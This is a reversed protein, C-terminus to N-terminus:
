PVETTVETRPLLAYTGRRLKAVRWPVGLTVLREALRQLAETVQKKGREDCPKGLVAALQEVTLPQPARDALGRWLREQLPSLDDPPNSPQTTGVLDWLTGLLHLQRDAGALDNITYRGGNAMIRLDLTELEDNVRSILTRVRNARARALTDQETAKARWDPLPADTTTPIRDIDLTLQEIDDISLGAEGSAVFATLLHVHTTTIQHPDVGPAALTHTRLDLTPSPRSVEPAGIVVGLTASAALQWPASLRPTPDLSGVMTSIHGLADTLDRTNAFRANLESVIDGPMSEGRLFERVVAWEPSEVLQALVEVPLDLLSTVDIGLQHLRAEIRAPEAQWDITPLHLEHAMAGSREALRAFAGPYLSCRGHSEVGFKFFLSQTALVMQAIESRPAVSRLTILRNLVSSRDVPRGASLSEETIHRLAKMAQSPRAEHMSFDLIGKAFREVQVDVNRSISWSSPLIAHWRDVVSLVDKRRLRTTTPHPSSRKALKAGLIEKYEDARQNILAKPSPLFPSATTTLRGTRLFPALVECALLTLTHELMCGPSFIVIDKVLLFLSLERLLRPLDELRCSVGGGYPDFEGYFGVEPPVNFSRSQTPHNV